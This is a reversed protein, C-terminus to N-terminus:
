STQAQLYGQMTIHGHVTPMKVVEEEIIKATWQM